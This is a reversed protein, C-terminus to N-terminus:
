NGDVPCGDECVAGQPRCDDADGEHRDHKPQHFLVPPAYSRETIQVHNVPQPFMGVDDRTYRAFDDAALVHRRRRARLGATLIESIHQLRLGPGIEPEPVLPRRRDVIGVEYEVVIDERDTRADERPKNFCSQRKRGVDLVM